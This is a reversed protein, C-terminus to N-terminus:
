AKRKRHRGLIGAVNAVILLVGSPEPVVVGLANAAQIQSQTAPIDFGFGWKVGLNHAVGTREDPTLREDFAQLKALMSEVVVQQQASLEQGEDAM